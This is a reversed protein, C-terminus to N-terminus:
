QERRGLLARLRAGVRPSPVAPQSPTAVDRRTPTRSAARERDGRLQERMEGILSEDKQAV